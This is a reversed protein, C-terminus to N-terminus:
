YDSLSEFNIKLITKSNITNSKLIIFGSSFFRKLDIRLTFTNSVKKFETDNTINFCTNGSRYFVQSFTINESNNDTNSLLVSYNGPILINFPLNVEYSSKEKIAESFLSFNTNQFYIPKGEYNKALLIFGDYFAEIGYKGTSYLSSMSNCMSLEGNRDFCQYYGLAYDVKNTITLNQLVYTFNSPYGYLTDFAEICSLAYDHVDVYPLNNQYIVYPNDSPILNIINVYADYTSINPHYIDDRYPDGSYKNFPGWPQYVLALLLFVLFMAIIGKKLKIKNFYNKIENNNNENLVKTEDYDKKNKMELSEIITLFVFPAITVTYQYHLFSPYVYIGGNSLFSLSIFPILLILWSFKKLSIFIFPIFIFMLTIIKNSLDSFVINYINSNNIHFYGSFKDSQYVYYKSTFIVFYSYILYLLFFIINFLIYKDEDCIKKLHLSREKLKKIMIISFFLLPFVLYPFRVTGSLFFFFTALKWNNKLYFLYGLLFLLIFFAQFHYDFHNVGALIFYIM